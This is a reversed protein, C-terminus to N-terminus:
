YRPSSVKPKSNHKAQSFYIHHNYELKNWTLIATEVTAIAIFPLGVGVSKLQYSLRIATVLLATM